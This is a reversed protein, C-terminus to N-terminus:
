TGYGYLGPAALIKSAISAAEGAPINVQVLIQVMADRNHSKTAIDFQDLLGAAYLRENTTMGSYDAKNSSLPVREGAQSFPVKRKIHMRGTSRSSWWYFGTSM